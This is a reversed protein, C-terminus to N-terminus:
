GVRGLTGQGQRQGEDWETAATDVGTRSSQLNRHGEAQRHQNEDMDKQKGTEHVAKCM